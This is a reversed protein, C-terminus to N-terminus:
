FIVEGIYTAWDANSGSYQAAFWTQNSSSGTYSTAEYDGWRSNNTPTSSKFLYKAPLFTGKPTKQTRTAYLISPDITSSMTDFVMLIKGKPTVMVAGFSADQDGSFNIYGDQVVSGGTVMGNSITPKIQGWYIGPVVQTGNNIGTELAFTINGKQYVPTGSIRTDLTEICGSCGPDDANPPSIYTKKTAIVTDSLSANKTGPNNVAWVIIGSCATSSCNSTGDGDMNFSDVLLGVGPGTKAENEVPQVTDVNVGNAKLNYFGYATVKSGAEMAAKNVSFTEAYVYASGAQNFMNASYYIANQDFGFETYDAACTSCASKGKSIQMNFAYVNWKGNPNSTQSVAEWYYHRNPAATSALRM